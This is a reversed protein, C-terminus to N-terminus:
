TAVKGILNAADDPHMAGGAYHAVRRPAGRRASAAGNVIPTAGGRTVRSRDRRAVIQRAGDIRRAAGFIRNVARPVPLPIREAGSPATFVWPAM